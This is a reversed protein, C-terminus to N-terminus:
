DPALAARRAAPGRALSWLRFAAIATLGVMPWLALGFGPGAGHRALLLGIAIEAVVAALFGGTNVLGSASGARHAPGGERALDFALLAAAGALGTLAFAAFALAAPAREGPWALALAWTAALAAAVGVLLAPRREPRRAALLGIVPSGLAYVAVTMLLWARATGPALGQGQVLYPYGWLATMTVFPGMLGFHAWFGHRTGPQAASLRLTRLIGEHRAPARRGGGDDPGAPRDRVVALCLVILLASLVGSGVFTGSWGLGGLAIGLPITTVIQGLAGALGTLGAVLAYRRVPFWSDALRLVNLFTFADGIGVLARGALGLAMSTSLGFTVEGVAMFALGFALMRRPGIRDAGLGAPVQMVLYLGLQVASFAALAGAEVGFRHTAELSAVGLSM